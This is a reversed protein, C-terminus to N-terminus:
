TSGRRPLTTDARGRRGSPRLRSPDASAGCDRRRSRPGSTDFGAPRCPCSSLARTSWSAAFQGRQKELRSGALKGAAGRRIQWGRLAAKGLVGLHVLKVRVSTSRFLRAKVSMFDCSTDDDSAAALFREIEADSLARRVHRQHREGTPLPKVNALPNKAILDAMVAWRLMSRLAGTEVNVTRNAVGEQLRAVRYRMLDVVRLDRVRQASLERLVRELSDTISRLQKAGVRVRLDALYSKRLEVLLMSQGEVAGLGAVELDRQHILEARLREAIRKDTSLAQRRRRGCSDKWALVWRPPGAGRKDLKLSGAGLARGLRSAIM